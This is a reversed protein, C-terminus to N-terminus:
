NPGVFSVRVNKNDGVKNQVKLLNTEYYVNYTGANDKTTTFAAEGGLATLVQDAVMYLEAVKDIKERVM